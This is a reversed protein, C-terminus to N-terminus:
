RVYIKFSGAGASVMYVGTSLPKFYKDTKIIFSDIMTGNVSYIAIPTGQPGYIEIGGDVVSIKVGDYEVDEIGTTGDIHGGASALSYGVADADAAVINHMEIDGGIFNRDAKFSIALVSGDNDEFIKRSPSFLVVRVIGQDIVHWMVAHDTARIGAEVGTVSVGQPLAMDFQLATYGVTNDLKLEMMGGQGKTLAIDDAYLLDKAKAASVKHTGSVSVVYPQDLVLAVTATADAITISGNGDVDAARFDFVEPRIGVVYNTTHVADTVNVKDDDNSDGAYPARVTVSCVAKVGSGDNATATIDVSGEDVAVIMGNGDIQAIRPNSSTWVVTNDTVTEPGVTAVLRATKNIKVTVSTYDLSIATALTPALTVICRAKVGSGDTACASITATGIKRGGTVLGNEDVTAIEEDDSIWELATNTADASEVTATLQLNERDRLTAEYSDLTIKSVLKDDSLPRINFFNEWTYSYQYMDISEEPVFLTASKEIDETFGTLGEPPTTNFSKIYGIKPCNAFANDGISTVRKGLSVWAVSSCGNFANSGVNRLQGDPILVYPLSTCGAFSEVGLGYVSAPIEADELAVCGKFVRPGITELTSGLNATKLSTCNSFTEDSLSPLSAPLAIEPLSTCGYFAQEGLSILKESLRVSKLSTCEKFAWLGISEVCDPVYLPDLSSCGTFGYKGIIVCWKGIELDKLTTIYAFPSVEPCDTDYIIWRGLHLKAIPCDRFLGKKVTHKINSEDRYDYTANGLYLYEAGDALSVDALSTCNDFVWNGINTVNTPIVLKPLSSCSSFVYDDIKKLSKGLNAYGLSSCGSFASECIETIKDPITIGALSSCYSFMGSNLITLNESLKASTLDSCSSFASSGMSVVADPVVIAKLAAMGSFATSGITVLSEPLVLTQCSLCNALLGDHVMTVTGSHSFQIDTLLKQSDFPSGYYYTVWSVGSGVRYMDKMEYTLNRGIYLKELQCDTFLPQRRKNPDVKNASYGIELTEGGDNFRVEKLSSCGDVSMNGLSRLSGPFELKTLGTCKKFVSDKVYILGDPMIVEKIGTCGVFLHNHLYTVKPGITVKAISTRHAFIAWEEHEKDQFGMVNKDSSQYNLDRGIYVTRLPSTGFYNEYQENNIDLDGEGDSFTLYALRTCGDFSKTGMASVSGPIRISPLGSNNRFVEKKIEYLSEPLTYTAMGTCNMFARDGITKVGYPVDMEALAPCDMFTSDSIATISSGLSAFTLKECGFFAASGINRVGEPLKVATFSRCGFFARDGISELLSGAPFSLQTAAVCGKFAEKGVSRLAAPFVLQTLNTCREFANDGISVLSNGITLTALKTCNRFANKGITEVNPLRLVTMTTNNEFMGDPINKCFNGLSVQKVGTLDGLTAETTDLVRGMYVTELKANKPNFVVTEYILSNPQQWKHLKLPKDGDEIVINALSICGTYSDGSYIYPDQVYIDTVSAPITLDTMQSAEAFAKVDITTVSYDLGSYSITSPIVVNTLQSYSSSRVVAATRNDTDVSFMLDGVKVDAHAFSVSGFVM